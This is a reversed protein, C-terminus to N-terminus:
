ISTIFVYIDSKTHVDRYLCVCENPVRMILMNSFGLFDNPALLGFTRFLIALMPQAQKHHHSFLMLKGINSLFQVNNEYIYRIIWTLTSASALLRIIGDLVLNLAYVANRSYCQGSVSM